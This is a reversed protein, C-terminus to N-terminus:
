CAALRGEGCGVVNLMQGLVGAVTWTEAKLAVSGGLISPTITPTDAPVEM